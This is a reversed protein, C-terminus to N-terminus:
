NTKVIVFGKAPVNTTETVDDSVSYKELPKLSINGVGAGIYSGSISGACEVNVVKGSVPSSLNYDSGSANFFVTFSGSSHSVTYRTVGNSLKVADCDAPNRFAEYDKRLAILGRYNQYVDIYRLKRTLSINNVGDNANYSNDNGNKTRCFEQGGNLFPTGQSLIIYSAALKEMKRVSAVGNNNLMKDFFGGTDTLGLVSM